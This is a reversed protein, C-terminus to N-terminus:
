RAAPVGFFDNVAAIVEARATETLAPHVPLALQEAAARESVPFDGARYGLGAFVPELHLPRRYYVATAIGRRALHAALADRCDCAISYM